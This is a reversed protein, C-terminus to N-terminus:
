WFREPCTSLNECHDKRVVYMHEVCATGFEYKVLMPEFCFVMNEELITDSGPAFSPPVHTSTGIGHGRFYLYESVGKERALSEAIEALDGIRSGTRAERMVAHVIEIQDEMLRRQEETPPGVTRQRSMDSCYGQYRAGLDTYVWDGKQLKRDTPATHKFGSRPGSVVAIPLSTDEAGAKFMARNAEASLDFESVGEVAAEMLALLGADAVHASARLMEVEADSKIAMAEPLLRGADQIRASPFNEALWNTLKAKGEGSVGVAGRELGREKLVDELHDYITTTPEVLTRPHPACRVDKLWVEQIGSHMPESHMVANTMFAPEGEVPLVFLSEGGYFDEYNALYRIAARDDRTGHVILGETGSARLKERLRDVRAEYEEVSFPLHMWKQRMEWDYPVRGWGYPWRVERMDIEGKASKANQFDDTLNGCRAVPDPRTQIFPLFNFGVIRYSRSM